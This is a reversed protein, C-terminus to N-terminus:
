ETTPDLLVAFNLLQVHALDVWLVRLMANAIIHPMIPLPLAIKVYKRSVLLKLSTFSCIIARETKIYDRSHEYFANRSAIARKGATNM